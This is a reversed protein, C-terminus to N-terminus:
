LPRQARRNRSSYVGRKWAIYEGPEGLRRAAKAYRIGKTKDGLRFACRAAYKFTVAHNPRTELAKELQELAYRSLNMLVYGMNFQLHPTAERLYERARELECLAEDFEEINALIIGPEVAPADWGPLLAASLWCENIGEDILDRRRLNKGAMGLFSGLEFHARPSLRFDRVITRRHEIGAELIRVPSTVGGQIRRRYEKEAATALQQLAEEAPDSFASSGDLDDRSGDPASVDLADQALGAASRRGTSRAAVM